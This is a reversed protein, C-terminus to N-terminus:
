TYEPRLYLHGRPLILGKARLSIIAVNISSRCFDLRSALSGLTECERGERWCAVVLTLVQDACYSSQMDQAATIGSDSPVLGDGIIGRKRLAAAIGMGVRHSVGLAQAFETNNLPRGQAAYTHLVKIARQIDAESPRWGPTIRRSPGRAAKPAYPYPVGARHCYNVLRMYLMRTASPSPEIGFARAIDAFEKGQKRMTYIKSAQLELRSDTKVAKSLDYGVLRLRKYINSTTCGNEGAVVKVPVGSRIRKWVADFRKRTWAPGRKGRM